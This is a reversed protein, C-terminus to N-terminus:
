KDLSRLRNQRGKLETGVIGQRHGLDTAPQVSEWQRDLKGSCSAGQQGWLFYKRMQLMAKCQEGSAGHIQWSALMSESLCNRPAIVEQCRISLRQKPPQRDKGAAPRNGGCPHDAICIHKPDINEIAQCYEEIAAQDNALRMTISLRPKPHELGDLCEGFLLQNRRIIRLRYPLVMQGIIERKGFM